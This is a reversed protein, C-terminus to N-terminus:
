FRFNKKLFHILFFKKKLLVMSQNQNKAVNKNYEFLYKYENWILLLTNYKIPSINFSIYDTIIKLQKTPRYYEPVWPDSSLVVEIISTWPHLILENKNFHHGISVTVSNLTIEGNMRKSPKKWLCNLKSIISEISFTIHDLFCLNNSLM